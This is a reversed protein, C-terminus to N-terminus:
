VDYSKLNIEIWITEVRPNELDTRRKYKLVNCVNVMLGGGNHSRDKGFPEGFGDLLLNNTTVSAHLHTESFCLIRFSEAINKIYDLKNRITNLYLVDLSNVSTETPSPGPNPHVDMCM